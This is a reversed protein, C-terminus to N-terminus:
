VDLILYYFDKNKGEYKSKDTNYPIYTFKYERDSLNMTTVEKGKRLVVNITGQFKYEHAVCLESNENITANKKFTRYHGDNTIFIFCTEIRNLKAFKKRISEIEVTQNRKIASLKEIDEWIAKRRQAGGAQKKLHYVLKENIKVDCEETCYKFEFIYGVEKNPDIALLDVRYKAKQNRQEKKTQMQYELHCDYGMHWLELAFEYQLHSEIIFAPHKERLARIVSEALANIGKTEM